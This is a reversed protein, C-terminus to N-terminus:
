RQAHWEHGRGVYDIQPAFPSRRCTISVWRSGGGLNGSASAVRLLYIGSATQGDLSIKSKWGSRRPVTKQNHAQRGAGLAHRAPEPLLESGDIVLTTVGGAQLGACHFIISKPLRRRPGVFGDARDRGHSGLDLRPKLAGRIM